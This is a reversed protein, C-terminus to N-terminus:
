PLEIGLDGCIKKVLAEKIQSRNPVSSRQGTIANAWWSARRGKRVLYCGNQKLHEELASRRM